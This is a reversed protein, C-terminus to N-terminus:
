QKTSHEQEYQEMARRLDTSCPPQLGMETMESKVGEIFHSFEETNMTSTGFYCLLQVGKQGKIDIEGIEECERWQSKMAEVAQGPRVVIYTYKGYRRLMKLYIEWKDADLSHAIEGIMHWLLANASLSRKERWQTMNVRLDGSIDVKEDTELTIECKKTVPNYNISKVNAKIEM